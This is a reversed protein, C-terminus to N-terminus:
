PFNPITFTNTRNIPDFAKFAILKFSGDPQRGFTARGYLPMQQGGKVEGKALFGIEITNDDIQTVDDRSFNWVAVHVDFQKLQPWFPSKRLEDRTAVKGQIEVKDAVHEVFADANKADAAMAMLHTRRVAEERPSESVKDLLFVLLMLLFAIGFPIVARRDQKQAALVATIVLFGGLVIYVWQPPDSLFTPM